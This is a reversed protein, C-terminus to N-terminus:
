ESDPERLLTVVEDPFVARVELHGGLAAVYCALTDLYADSHLGGENEELADGFASTSVGRRRRVADLRDEADMLRRYMAVRAENLPRQERITRWNKNQDAM